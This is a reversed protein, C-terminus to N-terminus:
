LFFETVGPNLKKRKLVNTQLGIQYFNRHISVNLLHFNKMFHLIVDFTM